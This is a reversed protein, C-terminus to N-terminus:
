NTFEMKLLGGEAMSLSMKEKFFGQFFVLIGSRCHNKCFIVSQCFVLKFIIQMKLISLKRIKKPTYVFVECVLIDFHISLKPSKSWHNEVVSKPDRVENYTDSFYTKCIVIKCILICHIVM